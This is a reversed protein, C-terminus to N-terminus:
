YLKHYYFVKCCQQLSSNFLGKEFLLFLCLLLNKEKEFLLLSLMCKFLSLAIIMILIANHCFMYNVFLHDFNMMKNYHFM